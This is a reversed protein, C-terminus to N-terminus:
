LGVDTGLDDEVPRGHPGGPLVHERRRRQADRRALVDREHPQRPRALRRQERQREPEGIGGVAADGDAAQLRARHPRGDSPDVRLHAHPVAVERVVDRRQRVLLPQARQERRGLEARHGRAHVALREPGVAPQQRTAFRLAHAQRAGEVAIAHPQRHEVLRQAAEVARLAM